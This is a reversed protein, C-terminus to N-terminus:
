AVTQNVGGSNTKNDIAPLQMQMRSESAYTDHLTGIIVKTSEHKIM